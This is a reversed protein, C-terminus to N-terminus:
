DLQGLVAQVQIKPTVQNLSIGCAVPIARGYNISLLGTFGLHFVIKVDVSNSGVALTIEVDLVYLGV